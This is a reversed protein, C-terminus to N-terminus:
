LSSKRQDTFNQAIKWAVKQYAVIGPQMEDSRM